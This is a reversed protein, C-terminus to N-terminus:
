PKLVDEFAQAIVAYGADNPHIDPGHPPSFCMWTWACVNDVDDPVGNGNADGLDTTSFAGEVDAVPDGAAAYLGELVGNFGVVGDVAGQLVTVDHSGFWAGPLFPDYYTMGIIPVETGAADRLQQLITPLNAEVAPIGGGDAAILDNGGIDITVLTVEGQHAQLFAKAEALQSGAPFHVGCWPSGAIMTTTTEGGCALKVVRLQENPQRILKLLQDPYGQNYGPFGLPSWPGGIPQYGQALSDGLALYYKVGSDAGAVPVALLAAVCSVLLSIGMKM